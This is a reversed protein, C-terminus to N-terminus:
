FIGMCFSFHVPAVVFPIQRKPQAQFIAKFRVVGDRKVNEGTAPRPWESIFIFVVPRRVVRVCLCDNVGRPFVRIWLITQGM